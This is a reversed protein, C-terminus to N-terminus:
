RQTKANTLLGTLEVAIENLKAEKAYQRPVVHLEAVPLHRRNLRFAERVLRKFRNRECSSGYRGSATIGLRLKKAPRIDVCLCKGVVRRGENKLARFDTKSLLRFEKLFLNKVGLANQARQPPPPQDSQPWGSNEDPQSIWPGKKTQTQQSSVNEEDDM